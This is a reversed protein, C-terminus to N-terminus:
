NTINLLRLYSLNFFFDSVDFPILNNTKPLPETGCLPCKSGIYAHRVIRCDDFYAMFEKTKDPHKEWLDAELIKIIAEPTRTEYDLEGDRYFSIKDIWPLFLKYFNIHKYTLVDDDSPTRRTGNSLFSNDNAYLASVMDALYAKGFKVFSFVTPVKRHIVIDQTLQLATDLGLAEGYEKFEKLKFESPSLLIKWNEPKLRDAQRIKMDNIDVKIKEVHGCGAKPCFMDFKFGDPHILAIMASIFTDLDPLRMAKAINNGQSWNKLNSGVVLYPMMNMLAEVFLIDDVAYYYNGLIKGFEKREADVNTLINRIEDNSPKRVRIFFGSNELHVKRVGEIRAITTLVAEEGELFKGSKAPGHSVKDRLDPHESIREFKIGKKFLEKLTRLEYLTRKTYFAMTINLIKAIQNNPDERIAKIQEPTFKVGNIEKTIDQIDGCLIKIFDGADDFDRPEILEQPSEEEDPVEDFGLDENPDPKIEDSPEEHHPKEVKASTNTVERAAEIASEWDVDEDNNQTVNPEDNTSM